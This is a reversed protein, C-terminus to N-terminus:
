RLVQTVTNHDVMTNGGVSDVRSAGSAEQLDYFAVLNTLLSGSMCAYRLPNGSNYLTAVETTNLVKNWYGLTGINGNTYQTNGTLHGIDNAIATGTFNISSTNTEPAANNIYLNNKQPAAPDYTYVIHYWTNNSLTFISNFTLSGQYIKIRNNTGDQIGIVWGTGSSTFNSFFTKSLQTANLYVWLSISFVTNTIGTFNTAELYNNSGNFGAVYLPTCSLPAPPYILHFQGM